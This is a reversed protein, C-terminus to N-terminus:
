SMTACDLRGRSSHEFGIFDMAVGDLRADTLELFEGDASKEFTLTIPGNVVPIDAPDPAGFPFMAAQAPDIM